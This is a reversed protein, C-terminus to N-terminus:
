TRVSTQLPVWLTVRTGCGPQSQIECHGGMREMRDRINRLGDAGALEGGLEFGCGNDAVLFVLKGEGAHIALQLETAGSHRAVNNMAEKFALFFNYRHESNLTIAPLGPQVDFRCALQLPKLLRQAYQCAYVSLSNLSDNRPNVAWVIEDMRQVLERALGGVERVYERSETASLAANQALDTTLGIETLGAGLDDHLDQAIRSREREVQQQHHLAELKRRLRQQTTRRVVLTVSAVLALLAAALFTKREWFHPEVTLRFRAGPFNWVGDSNGAIVHFVYHGPPLPNYNVSRRSGADVWDADFPELRYKFRLLDPASFEPATYRVELNKKGPEVRIEPEPSHSAAPLFACRNQNAWVSEVLVPPAPNVTRVDDPQVWNAGKPSGYWLAGDRARVCSPQFELTMGVTPLGDNRGFLRCAVPGNRVAKPVLSKKAVCMVGSRSGLWLNGHEDSLIHSIYNDALGDAVTFRTFAGDKFRLLGANFTGIWVTGDAEPYLAWFRSFPFSDLPQSSTIKGNKWRRLSGGFTGSLIAGDPGEALAAVVQETATTAIIRELKQGDFRFLGSFNAFWVDGNKTVLLQRVGNTVQDPLLAHHFGTQDRVLLGNGGTGLWVRGDPGGCVVVDQCFIGRQPLSFNQCRGDAWCAVSGGGNDVRLSRLHSWPLQKGNWDTLPGQWHQHDFFYLRNDAEIWLGSPTPIIHRISVNEAPGAPNCNTFAGHQWVALETGTGVWIQGAEDAALTQIRNEALGPLTELLQFKEATFRGLKGTPTQFWLVGDADEHYNYQGIAFPPKYRQWQWQGGAARRGLVLEDEVTVLALRGGREGVLSGLRIGEAVKVFSDGQRLLLNGTSDGVWLNGTKDVLLRKVGLNVLAPTNASDFNVFQVGDFRSLGSMLTSIWLFGDPTQAIDTVSSQPLGEDVGWTTVSYEGALLRGALLLGCGGLWFRNPWASWVAPPPFNM